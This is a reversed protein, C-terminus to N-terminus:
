KICYFSLLMFSSSSSSRLANANENRAGVTSAKEAFQHATEWDTAMSQVCKNDTMLLLSLTHIAFPSRARALICFIWRMMTTTTMTDKGKANENRCIRSIRPVMEISSQCGSSCMGETARKGGMIIIILMRGTVSKNEWHISHPLITAFPSQCLPTFHCFPFQFKYKTTIGHHTYTHKHQAGM